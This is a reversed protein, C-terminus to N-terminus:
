VPENPASFPPKPASGRFPVLDRLRPISDPTNSLAIADIDLRLAEVIPVVYTPSEDLSSSVVGVVRGWADMVPAGSSGGYASLTTQLCHGPHVVRDRGTPFHADVVGDTWFPELMAATVGRNNSVVTTLPYGFCFVVDGLRPIDASLALFTNALPARTEANCLPKVLGVAIDAEPHRYRRVIPRELYTHSEPVLQPVYLVEGEPGDELVHAATLLLGCDAVFFGTAVVGFTGDSQESCIPFVAVNTDTPQGGIAWGFRKDTM